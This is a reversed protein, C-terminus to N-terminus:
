AHARQHTAVNTMLVDFGEDLTVLQRVQMRITDLLPYDAWVRRLARETPVELVVYGGTEPFPECAEFIGEDLREALWAKGALVQEPSVIEAENPVPTVIILFRM